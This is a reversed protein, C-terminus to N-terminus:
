DSTLDTGNTQLRVSEAFFFVGGMGILLRSLIDALALLNGAALFAVDFLTAVKRSLVSVSRPAPIVVSIQM